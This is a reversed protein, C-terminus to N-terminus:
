WGERLVRDLTDVFLDADDAAICLPPKVKLVNEHDGTPQVIVGLERMRECLAYAEQSAPTRAARDRVLGVGLYLGHGHVAGILEHREALRELGARLRAGVRAANERLHEDRIADLVAIGLECCLPSG